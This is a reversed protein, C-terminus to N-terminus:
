RRSFRVPVTLSMRPKAIEPPPAPVPSARRVMDIAAEDLAPDGSSGAVSVSLVAGGPDIAFRVSVIGAVSAGRPFRKFRNLHKNVRSQWRAASMGSGKAGASKPAATTPADAASKRSAASAPPAPKAAPQPAAKKAPKAPEPKAPKPTEAKTPKPPKPKVEEVPEVTDPRPTPVAMAVEPLPAEVLDPIVEEVREPVIEAVSEASTDESVTDEPKVETLEATTTEPVAEEPREVPEAEVTEPTEVPAHEVDPQVREVVHETPTAETLPETSPLPVPEAQEVPEEVPEAAAASDVLEAVEEPVAEPAVAMPALELMVAPPAEDLSPEFDRWHSAALMAGGHAVLVFLAAAAWLSVERRDFRRALLDPLAAADDSM